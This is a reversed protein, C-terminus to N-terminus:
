MHAFISVVLIHGAAESVRAFPQGCGLHGDCPLISVEAHLGLTKFYM